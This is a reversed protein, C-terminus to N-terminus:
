NSKILKLLAPHNSPAASKKVTKLDIICQNACDIVASFFEYVSVVDFRVRRRMLRHLQFFESKPFHLVTCYLVTSSTCYLVSCCLVTRYLVTCYLVACHLIDTRVVVKLGDEKEGMAKTQAARVHHM